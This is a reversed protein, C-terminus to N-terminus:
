AHMGQGLEEGLEYKAEFFNDKREEFELLAKQANEAIFDLRNAAGSLGLKNKFAAM